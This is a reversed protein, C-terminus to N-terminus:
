RVVYDTVIHFDKDFGIYVLGQDADEPFKYEGDKLTVIVRGGGEIDAPNIEDYLLTQAEIKQYSTPDNEDVNMLSLYFDLTLKSLFEDEADAFNVRGNYDVSSVISERIEDPIVSAIAEAEDLTDSYSDRWYTHIDSFIDKNALNALYESFLYVSGYVGLDQDMPTQTTAFNYMSQGHRIRNSNSFAAYHGSNEKAGPYLAEEFYGSMAENLWTRVQTTDVTEFIGSFCILHQFEHAITACVKDKNGIFRSNIHIIDHDTNMGMRAKTADDAEDSAFGDANVFFGLTTREPLEYCLINVKGGNEAFRPTGFSSVAQDYIKEDFEKGYEMAQDETVTGDCTWVNCNTGAYLCTFEQKVRNKQGCYFEHTDGVSYPSILVGGRSGELMLQSFDFDQNLELTSMPIEDHNLPTLGDARQMEAEIYEEIEGTGLSVNEKSKEDYINPNYIMVYRIEGANSTLVSPAPTSSVTPEVSLAPASEPNAADHKQCGSCALLCLMMALIIAIIKKM